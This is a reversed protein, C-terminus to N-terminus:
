GEPAFGVVLYEGPLIPEGDPTTEGEGITQVTGRIDHYGRRRLEDLVYHHTDIMLARKDLPEGPDIRLAWVEHTGIQAEVQDAMEDILDRSAVGPTDRM